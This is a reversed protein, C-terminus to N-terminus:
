EGFISDSDREQGQRLWAKLSSAIRGQVSHICVVSQYPDARLGGQCNVAIERKFCNADREGGKMMEARRITHQRLSVIAMM